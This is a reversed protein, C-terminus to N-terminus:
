IQKRTVEGFGFLLNHRIGGNENHMALLSPLILCFTSGAISGIFDLFFLVDPMGISAATVLLYLSAHGYFFNNPIEETAEINKMRCYM